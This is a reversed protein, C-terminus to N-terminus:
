GNFKGRRVVGNILKTGTKTIKRQVLWDYLCACPVFIVFSVMGYAMCWGFLNKYTYKVMIYEFIDYRLYDRVIRNCSIIYILFSLSAFYNVIKNHYVRRRAIFFLSFAILIFMPNIFKNTVHAKGCFFPVRLGLFLLATNSLLWGGVGVGLMGLGEKFGVSNNSYKKVYAVVAYVVLFGIFDNYYLINGAVIFNLGGYVILAIINGMLLARQPIWDLAYNLVPHILYIMLYCTIFWNNGFTFPFFQHAIYMKPLDYRGACLFVILIVVSIVFANGMLKAIKEQRVTKSELLYWFSGVLFIDNGIQGLNHVLSILFLNISLKACDLNVASAHLNADGDPLSHSFIIFIIAICKILEISSNREKKM